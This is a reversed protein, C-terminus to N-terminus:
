TRYHVHGLRCNTYYIEVLTFYFLVVILVCRVSIMEMVYVHFALKAVRGLDFEVPLPQPGWTRHNYRSRPFHGRRIAAVLSCSIKDANERGGAGGGNVIDLRLRKWIFVWLM